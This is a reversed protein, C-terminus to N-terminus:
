HQLSNQLSIGEFFDPPKILTQPHRHGFAVGPLAVVSSTRCSLKQQTRLISPRGMKSFGFIEKM